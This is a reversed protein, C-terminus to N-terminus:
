SGEQGRRTLRTEMFRSWEDDKLVEAIIILSDSSEFRYRERFTGEFGTPSPGSAELILEDSEEDHPGTLEWRYSMTSDLWTGSYAHQEVDYGVAQVAEFDFDMIQGSWRSVVFFRGLMEATVTGSGVTQPESGGAPVTMRKFEWVGTLRELLEHEPQPTTFDTAQAGTVFICSVLIAAAMIWHGSTRVTM